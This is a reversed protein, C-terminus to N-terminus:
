KPWADRIAGKLERLCSGLRLCCQSYEWGIRRDLTAISSSLSITMTVINSDHVRALRCRQKAQEILNRREKMPQPGNCAFHVALANGGCPASPNQAAEMVPPRLGHWLHGSRPCNRALMNLNEDIPKEFVPQNRAFLIRRM